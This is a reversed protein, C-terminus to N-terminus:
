KTGIKYDKLKKRVLKYQSKIRSSSSKNIEEEDYYYIQNNKRFVRSNVEEDSLKKDSQLDIRLVERWPFPVEYM